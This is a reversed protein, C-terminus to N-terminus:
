IEGEAAAVMRDLEAFAISWVSPDTIDVGCRGLLTAPDASGGASLLDLYGPVFADSDERYRAYLVLAVLKAFVYAYTYFRTNIFPPIYRWGLEYGVILALSDGYYRRNEELWVASLRDPTLTPPLARMEYARQEYRVMVTQRFVTAFAGEARAAVLALRTGADTEGALLHDYTVFEAFTSPVEALALGTHASHPTQQAHALQFHMGHGLEHAMTLVDNMHDTFNMMIYPDADGAVPSCFAGGRKGARPEADIRHEAFLDDAVQRVRPAFGDFATTVISRAEDYGIDRANGVPAYQDHLELKDLGLVDAKARFWRQAIPYNAEVADLMADVVSADLENRLHTLTIPTEYSRLRDLVLRDGVLSDYCQALVPTHPGLAAYLTELAGRRVERRPDHVYALLRDVTHPEEGEGGDFPVEITSTTQGFLTQWASVAAPDRESLVREEPESLTHPRFRRLSELYHRDAAVEPAAALEAAREDELALWELEFFRLANLVQVVGQEVAASLDRNEEDTVDAAKRLSAYSHVRSLLNDIEGLELLAEALRPGTMDPMAGRWTQEFSTARELSTALAARADDASGFLPSLDWRVGAAHAETTV